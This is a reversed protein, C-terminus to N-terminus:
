FFNIKWYQKIIPQYFPINYEEEPYSGWINIKNIWGSNNNFNIKCWDKLCINIKVINNKGIKGIVKGRPKNYVQVRENYPPIVIAYRKGSLLSKHMWGQNGDFDNIKRWNNYEDIIEIPTNAIIYNLKIPYDTSPGIRANSDNSKLSVFRPIKLGTNSGFTDAYSSFSCFLLFTFFIKKIM